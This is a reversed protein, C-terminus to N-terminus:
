SCADFGEPTARYRFKDPPITIEFRAGTGYTGTEQISLGTVGLIERSIFLGIGTHKGYGHDFILDKEEPMIGIGDDEVIIRLLDPASAISFRIYTNHEGHREANEILTSFVKRIIPDSYVELNGPIDNMVRIRDVPMDVGAMRIIHHLPQWCSSVKGFGEYDRTFGITKEISEAAERASTIYRTINTMDTTALALAHLMQVATVQNLIDHRTLSTLLRLKQNSERLTEESRKRESIDLIAGILGIVQNKEDFFPAKYFIVQHLAGDVYKMRTEYQQVHPTTFVEEDAQYYVSALDAPWLDFVTKGIFQERSLGSMAEFAKNCGTYRGDRDKYFIPIPLTDVLVQLFATQRLLSEEAHHRDTVDIGFAIFRTGASPPDEMERTNWSIVKEGGTRTRITTEFNELFQHTTIIGTITGTIEKRYRPDPYLLKWIRGSGLVENQHYGTIEAAGTNWLHVVGRHDLVIILVRANSIITSQFLTLERLKDESRRGSVTLLTIVLAITIFLFVRIGAMSLVSPETTYGLILGFYTLAILCSFLLGRWTYLICALIIPIYFLNQFVVTLGLQLSYISVLICAITSGALLIIFRHDGPSIHMTDQKMRLSAPNESELESPM